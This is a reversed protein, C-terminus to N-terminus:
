YFMRRRNEIGKDEGGVVVDCSVVDDVVRDVNM